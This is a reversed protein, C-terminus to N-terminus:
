LIASMVFSPSRITFCLTKMLESINISVKKIIKNEVYKPVKQYWKALRVQYMEYFDESPSTYNLEEYDAFWATVVWVKKIM